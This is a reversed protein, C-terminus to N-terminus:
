SPKRNLRLRHELGKVAALLTDNIPTPVGAERGGRCVAGHIVDVETQSGKEISQLMSAKFGYPLGEWARRWPVEPDTTVIEIGLRCAVEIAEAVTAIALPEVEPHISLEGYPLGTLASWAGTAVNVLLKEWMMVDIDTSVDVAMGAREFTGAIRRIRETPSGDLEGITTRRGIVGFEVVGPATIRGGIFTRGAVVRDRGIVNAIMEECGVGNQLSLVTADPGLVPAMAEAAGQTDFSKVLVIALDVTALAEYSTTAQVAVSCELEGDHMVLGHTNVADVHARNRTVLVVDNGAAALTGGIASGLSGSGIVCVRVWRVTIAGARDRQSPRVRRQGIETPHSVREFGFEDNTDVQASFPTLWVAVRDPSPRLWTVFAGIARAGFM